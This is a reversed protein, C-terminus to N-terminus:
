LDLIDKVVPVLAHGILATQQADLHVGDIPSAQCILGANFFSTKTERALKEYLPAFLESESISRNQAPAGNKTPVCSPPAVILIEPAKVDDKWPYTRIQQVLRRMGAQAGSAYGCLFPKLDNTGLMIIILDLPYHSGLLMPLVRTANRENPASADDFCTTRGGLGESIVRAKGQLGHALVNPWRYEFLHRAGTAPDAGWTLSDGFALIEKM